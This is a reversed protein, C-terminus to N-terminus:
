ASSITKTVFLPASVGTALCGRAQGVTEFSVGVWGLDADVYALAIDRGLEPSYRVHTLQGLDRNEIRLRDGARAVGNSDLLMMLAHQRPAVKAALVADRGVFQPKRFNVMWHLGCRIPDFGSPIDTISLSRMELMLLRMVEASQKDVGLPQGVQLLRDTVEQSREQPCLVRFEFEGCFGMRFLTSQLPLNEEFALYPLGMVEEGAVEAMAAQAKPGILAIWSHSQALDDIQVNAGSLAQRLHDALSTATASETFVFFEDEGGRFVTAIAQIGANADLFLGSVGRWPLVVELDMSFCANLADQADPGGVRLRGEADLDILAARERAAQYSANM